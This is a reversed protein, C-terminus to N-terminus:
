SHEKRKTTEARSAELVSDECLLFFLLCRSCWYEDDEFLSLRRKSHLSLRRQVMLITLRTDLLIFM